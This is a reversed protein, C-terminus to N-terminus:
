RGVSALVEEDSNPWKERFRQSAVRGIFDFFADTDGLVLSQMEGEATDSTTYVRPHFPEMLEVLTETAAPISTISFVAYRKTTKGPRELRGGAIHWTRLTLPTREITEPVQKVRQGSEDHDYWEEAYQKLHVHSVVNSSAM